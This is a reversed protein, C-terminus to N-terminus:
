RRTGTSAWRRRRDGWRGWSTCTDAARLRTRARGASAAAARRRGGRAASKRALSRLSSLWSLGPASGCPPLLRAAAAAATAAAAAAATAAARRSGPPLPPPPAAASPALTARTARTATAGEEEASPPARDEAHRAGRPRRPAFRLPLSLDARCAHTLSRPLTQTLRPGERGGERGPRMCALDHMGHSHSPSRRAIPPVAPSGWTVGRSTPPSPPPSSDLATGRYSDREAASCRDNHDASSSPSEPSSSHRSNASFRHHGGPSLQLQATSAARHLSRTCNQGKQAAMRLGRSAGELAILRGRRSHGHGNAASEDHNKQHNRYAEVLERRCNRRATIRKPTPPPTSATSAALRPRRSSSVAFIRRPRERHPRPSPPHLAACSTLYRRTFFVVVLDSRAVSAEIAAPESLNDLDLFVLAQRSSSM